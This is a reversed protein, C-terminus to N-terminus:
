AEKVPVDPADLVRQILPIDGRGYGTFSEVAKRIRQYESEEVLISGNSEEIRRALTDQSIIDRASLNLGKQFMLTTLGDKVSIEQIANTKRTM